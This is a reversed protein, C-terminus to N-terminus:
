FRDILDNQEVPGQGHGPEYTDRRRGWPNGERVGIASNHDTSIRGARVNCDLLDHLNKILEFSSVPNM